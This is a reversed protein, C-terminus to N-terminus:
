RSGEQLLAMWSALWGRVPCARMPLLAWFHLPELLSSAGSGGFVVVFLALRPALAMLQGAESWERRTLRRISPSPPDNWGDISLLYCRM